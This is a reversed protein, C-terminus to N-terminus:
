LKMQYYRVRSDPDNKLLACVAEHKAILIAINSCNNKALEADQTKYVHFRAATVEANSLAESLTLFDTVSAMYADAEKRRGENEFCKSCHFYYSACTAYDAAMNNRTEDDSLALVNGPILLLAAVLLLGVRM